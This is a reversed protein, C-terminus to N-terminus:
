SKAEAERDMEALYLLVAHAALQEVSVGNLEGAKKELAARVGPEVELEL